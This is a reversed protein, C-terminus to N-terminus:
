WLRHHRAFDGSKPDTWVALGLLIFGSFAILPAKDQLFDAVLSLPGIERPLTFAIWSAPSADNVRLTFPGAPRHFFTSKWQTSGATLTINRSVNQQDILTLSIDKDQAYGTVSLKLWSTRDKAPFHLDITGLAASATTPSYSSWAPDFPRSSFGPAYADPRFANAENQTIQTPVLADRINTPLISRISPQTLINALREVNHYPVHMLPKDKLEGVDNSYLFARVHMEQLKSQEHKEIIKGPLRLLAAFILCGSVLAFWGLGLIFAPKKLRDKVALMLYLTCALSVCLSLSFNDAYRWSLTGVARGYAIAVAQGACWM